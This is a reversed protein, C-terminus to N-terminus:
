NKEKYSLEITASELESVFDDSIKFNHVKWDNDPKYFTLIFRIPQREYKLTYSHVEISEGISKKIILEEGYYKGLVNSYQIIKDKILKVDKEVIFKNTSFIYDLAQNSDKSKYIEFFENTIDTPTKQANSKCSFILLLLLSILLHKKLIIM